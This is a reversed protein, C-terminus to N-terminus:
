FTKFMKLNFGFGVCLVVEISTLLGSKSAKSDAVLACSRGLSNPLIPAKFGLRGQQSPFISGCFHEM